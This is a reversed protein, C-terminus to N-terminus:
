YSGDGKIWGWGVAAGTTMRQNILLSSHKSDEEKFIKGEKRKMCIGQLCRALLVEEMGIRDRAQLGKSDGHSWLGIQPRALPSGGNGQQIETALFCLQGLLHSDM